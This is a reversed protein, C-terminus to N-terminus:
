VGKGTAQQEKVSEDAARQIAGITEVVERFPRESLYSLIQNVLELPLNVHTIKPKDM